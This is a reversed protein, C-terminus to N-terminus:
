SLVNKAAEEAKKMRARALWVARPLGQVYTSARAETQNYSYFISKPFPCVTM